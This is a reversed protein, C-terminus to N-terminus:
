PTLRGDPRRHLREARVLGALLRELGAMSLQSCSGCEPAGAVGLTTLTSAPAVGKLVQACERALLAGSHRSVLSQAANAAAEARERRAASQEGAGPKDSLKPSAAGPLQALLATRKADTRRAAPPLLPSFHARWVLLWSHRNRCLPRLRQQFEGALPGRQDPPM